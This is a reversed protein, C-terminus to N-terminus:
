NKGTEVKTIGYFRLINEHTDVDRHLILQLMCYLNIKNFINEYVLHLHYVENIVEKLTVKDPNFFTKLAFYSDTNKWTARVVSGFSGSGIPQINKFDSYEYCKIHGESISKELWDVYYNSEKVETDNSM